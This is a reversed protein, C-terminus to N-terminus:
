EAMKLADSPKAPKLGIIDQERVVFVTKRDVEFTFIKACMVRDGVKARQLVISPLCVPCPALVGDDRRRQLGLGNCAECTRVRNSLALIVATDQKDKGGAIMIGNATRNLPAEPKIYVYNEMPDFEGAEYVSVPATPDVSVAGAFAHADRTAAAAAQAMVTERNNSM